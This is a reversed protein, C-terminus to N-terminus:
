AGIGALRDDLLQEPVSRNDEVFILDRKSRTLAVFQVCAEGQVAEPTAAYEVPMLHPYLIFVRNAERGKARHVTSLVVENKPQKCFTSDIHMRFRSMSIPQSDSQADEILVRVCRTEDGFKAILYERQSENELKSIRDTEEKVYRELRLEWNKSLNNRFIQIALDILRKGIDLGIISAAIKKRNLDVCTTVLPANNRCLILDRARVWKHLSRYKIVRLTGEIASELADIEPAIRKALRVHSKPCRFTVSLPLEVAKTERVIRDLSDPAAGAFGNIAQRADGVFLMRGSESRARMVLKLMTTSFDQAEDVCIFDFTEIPLGLEVPLCIMDQFDTCGTQEFQKVIEAHLQPLKLHISQDVRPDDSPRLNYKLSIAQIQQPDNLDVCNVRCFELLSKAYSKCEYKNAGPHQELLEEILEDILRAQKQEDVSLKVGKSHLHKELAGRGLSHVTRVAKGPLKRKLEDCIARNFALFCVRLHGPILRAVQQLTTTKGAGATARILANGEGSRIFDFIAHQQRSPNFTPKTVNVDRFIGGSPIM